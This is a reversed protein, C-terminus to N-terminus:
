LPTGLFARHNPLRGPLVVEGVVPNPGGQQKSTRVLDTVRQRITDAESTRVLDTVDQKITDSM